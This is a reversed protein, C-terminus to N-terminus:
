TSFHLMCVLIYAHLHDVCWNNSNGRKCTRLLFGQPSAQFRRLISNCNCLNPLYQPLASQEVVDKNNRKVQLSFLLIMTLNFSNNIRYYSRTHLQQLILLKSYYIYINSFIIQQSKLCFICPSPTTATIKNQFHMLSPNTNTIKSQFCKQFQSM